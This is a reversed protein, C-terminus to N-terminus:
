PFFLKYSIGVIVAISVVVAFGGQMRSIQRGQMEVREPLNALLTMMGTLKAVNESLVKIQSNHIM